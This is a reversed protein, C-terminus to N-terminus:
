DDFLSWLGYALAAVALPAAATVAVGAAMGGGVVSGAAALGSTVGTAGLGAVTGGASIAAVTGGAGATGGAVAAKEKNKM